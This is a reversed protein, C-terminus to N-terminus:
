NVGKAAPRIIINDGTASVESNNGKREAEMKKKEWVATQILYGTLTTLPTEEPHRHSLLHITAKKWKNEKEETKRKHKM